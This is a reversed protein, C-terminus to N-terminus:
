LLGLRPRTHAATRREKSIKSNPACLGETGKTQQYMVACPTEADGEGPLPAEHDFGIAHGVEHAVLYARYERLTGTFRSPITEWNKRNLFIRNPSPGHNILTVSLGQLHDHPFMRNIEEEETMSITFDIPAGEENKGVNEFTFGISRWGEPDNIVDRIFARYKRPVSENFGYKKHM